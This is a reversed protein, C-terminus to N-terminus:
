AIGARLREDGVGGGDAGATADALVPELGAPVPHEISEAATLTCVSYVVTGGPRVLQAAAELVEDRDRARRREKRALIKSRSHAM